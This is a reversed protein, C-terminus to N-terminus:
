ALWTLKADHAAVYIFANWARVFIWSVFCGVPASPLAPSPPTALTEVAGIDIVVEDKADYPYGTCPPECVWFFLGSLSVEVQKYAERDAASSADGDAMWIELSLKAKRNVYDITVVKLVSDHFGNPLSAALDDLTM